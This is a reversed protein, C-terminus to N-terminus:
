LKKLGEKDVYSSCDHKFVFIRADYHENDLKCKCKYGLYTRKNTNSYKEYQIVVNYICSNCSHGVHEEFRSISCYKYYTGDRYPSFRFELKMNIEEPDM